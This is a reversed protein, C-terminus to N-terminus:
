KGGDPIVTFLGFGYAKKKGAGKALIQRFIDADTVRLLGEYIAKNLYNIGCGHKVFAERGREVIGYKGPILEFGFGKARAELYELQQGASNMPVVKGRKGNGQPISIVPNMMVRFRYVKGEEIKELFKDYSKTQASGPVGYRELLSIDPRGESIVLLYKRDRITDIRWLKRSRMGKAFEEPFCSEVWNHYAGLHTLDRVKARNRIDIEVRSIYM